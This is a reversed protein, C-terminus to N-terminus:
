LFMGGMISSFKKRDFKEDDIFRDGDNIYYYGGFEEDCKIELNGYINYTFYSMKEKLQSINIAKEAYHMDSDKLLQKYENWVDKGDIIVNGMEIKHALFVQANEEILTMIKLIKRYNMLMCNEFLSKINDRNLRDSKVKLANFILEYISEFNKDQFKAMIDINTIPFNVRMDDKYIM